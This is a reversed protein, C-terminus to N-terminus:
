VGPILITRKHTIADNNMLVVNEGDENGDGICQVTKHFKVQAAHHALQESDFSSIDGSLGSIRLPITFQM